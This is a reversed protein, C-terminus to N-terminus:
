RGADPHWELILEDHLPIGDDGVKPIEPKLLRARAVAGRDM